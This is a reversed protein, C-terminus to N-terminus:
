KGSPILLLKGTSVAEGDLENAQCIRQVTTGFAKAIDWLREGPMAARMVVSPKSGAGERECESWRVTKLTVVPQQRTLCGHLDMNFRLELGGATVAAFAEGPCSCQVSCRSNEPIDLQGSVLITRSATHLRDQEDLYLVDAQLQTELSNGTVSVSCVRVAADVVSKAQVQTEITERMTQPKAYREVLDSVMLKQVDVAMEGCTSYADQLVAVTFRESVVAQGMLDLSVNLTRGDEGAQVCSVDTVYLEVNCDAQEGVGEIEMIQSFGIPICVSDPKGGALYRVRVGAEGKIVLKNGILRAETCWAEARVCLLEGAGDLGTPAHVEEYVSFAKEQVFTTLYAQQEAVLRQAQAGDPCELGCCVSLKRPEYLRLDVGIDARVLVKRPNLTRADMKRLVPRVVWRGQSSVGAADAKATFPIRLALKCLGGGGEPEYLLWGSVVGCATLTGDQLRTENMCLQGSAEVIRLIDPLADPVIAEQTEEQCVQTDLVAEFHNLDEWTLELEM